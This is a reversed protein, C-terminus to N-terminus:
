SFLKVAVAVGIALATALLGGAAGWVGAKVELRSVSRILQGQEQQLSKLGEYLKEAQEKFTAVSAIMDELRGFLRAQNQRMERQRREVTRILARHEGIEGAQPCGTDPGQCKGNGNSM